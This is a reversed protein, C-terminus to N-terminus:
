LPRLRADLPCAGPLSPAQRCVLARTRPAACSLLTAPALPVQPAARGPPPVPLLRANPFVLGALLCATSSNPVVGLAAASTFEPPSWARAPRDPPASRMPLFSLSPRPTRAPSSSSAGPGPPACSPLKSPATAM